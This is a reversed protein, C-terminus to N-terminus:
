ASAQVTGTSVLPGNESATPWSATKTACSLGADGRVRLGVALQEPRM